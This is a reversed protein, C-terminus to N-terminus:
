RRAPLHVITGPRIRVSTAADADAVDFLEKPKRKADDDLVRVVWDGVKIKGFNASRQGRATL